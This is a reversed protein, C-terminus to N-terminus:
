ECRLAIMPDIRTARRAPLYSALFAVLTLLLVAGVCTLPDFLKVGYLMESLNMLRELLITMVFSGLLGITIGLLVLVM